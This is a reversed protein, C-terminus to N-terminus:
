RCTTYTPEGVKYTHCHRHQGNPGYADWDHTTGQYRDEGHWGDPGTWHDYHIGGDALLLVTLLAAKVHICSLAAHVCTATIPMLPLTVPSIVLVSM